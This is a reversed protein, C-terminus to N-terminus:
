IKPIINQQSKYILFLDLLSMAALSEVIVPTRLVICADHRGKIKLESIEGSEINYTQQATAISSTPKVAVRFVIDNSNTIGGNIGGANNTETKGTVDIIMDNHESGRHKTTDFGEGFEIGRVAPMSFIAHSIVSEVSNFFPEGVGSPMGKVRCEVVGGISDSNKLADEILDTYKSPDTETAVSIVKASIEINHHQLAHKAVTGSAVLGLTIRGSFHGGGRYDSFGNYKQQAVLDAHGPRPHKVLNSYDGSRTNENQFLVTIPAGTTYGNFVGSVIKPIDGEKRSTTGRAGAKRRALDVILKEEDIELGVPCGDIVAGVEVGHSEGFISTRYIVGFSNM